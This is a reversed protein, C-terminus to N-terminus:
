GCPRPSSPGGLEAVEGNPLVIKAGLIHDTTMGYKFCHPGGSNEALNGGITCVSQSSPDPAYHAGHKAIQTSLDLNVLGPEVVAIMEELDLHLVSKMLATDIIVSAPSPTAGGSLGTGAGRPLFPTNHRDLIRVAEQVEDTTKPLVVALPRHRHITFADCEYALLSSPSTLCRQSGFRASLERCSPDM